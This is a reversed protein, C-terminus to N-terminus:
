KKIQYIKAIIAQYFPARYITKPQKMFIAKKIKKGITNLNKQELLTLFKEQKQILDIEEQFYSSKINKNEFMVQNFGTHYFGPEILVVKINTKLYMLELQICETLKKISAKSACYSGLFPIPVIGALSSIMIIRGTKRVMMQKLVKQVLLFNSFVNVEFTERVKDIDIESISGGYGIAANSILCDIRIHDIKEIDMPETVDLKLCHINSINKYKEQVRKLQLKTRVSVYITHKTPILLDILSSAIGSRAGTILINM